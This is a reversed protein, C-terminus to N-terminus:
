SIKLPIDIVVRTGTEELDPHCDEIVIRNEVKWLNNYIKLRENVISIGRSKGSISSKRIGALKRGIGNDEVICILKGFPHCTFCISIIGKRNELGRVGHWIANEVFPQIMGSFVYMADVEIDTDVKLDYEFKDSFRLHELKLYDQLLDIEKALSIFEGSMNNLISRILKSFDAIYRNASLRDNQSIFYNISNLSNFIFHPNMQGRLSELKLQNQIQSNKLRVQRFYILFIIAFLAVILLFVIGKFWTTQYYFSPLIIQFHTSYKWEGSPNTAEIDLQYVGPILNAYNVFRHQFDTEIWENHYGTMRYRYKIKDPDKLNLGSFTIQFNNDGKKLSIIDSNYIAKPFYRSTGSVKFDTIILNLPQYQDIVDNVSDPYFRVIGGMGGFLM